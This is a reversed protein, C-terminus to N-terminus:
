NEDTLKQIIGELRNALDLWSPPIEYDTQRNSMRHELTEALSGTNGPDYLWEPHEKFLEKLSGVNAAIVPVDCAMFERTKQPFCYKGFEDDAYCVVAVDLANM